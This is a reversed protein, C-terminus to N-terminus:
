FHRKLNYESLWFFEIVWEPSQTREKKPQRSRHSKFRVVQARHARGKPIRAFLKRGLHFRNIITKAVTSVVFCPSPLASHRLRYADVIRSTLLDHSLLGYFPQYGNKAFCHRANRTPLASHVSAFPSSVFASPAIFFGMEAVM